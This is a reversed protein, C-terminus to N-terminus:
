REGAASAAGAAGAARLDVLLPTDKRPEIKVDVHKRGLKPNEITVSARGARVPFHLIPTTGALKGNVHVTAWPSANVSITGMAIAGREPRPAAAPATATAPASTSPITSTPTPTPTQPTPAPAPKSAPASAATAVVAEPRPRRSVIVITGAALTAAIGIGALARGGNGRRRPVQAAVVTQRRPAETAEPAAAVVRSLVTGERASPAPMVALGERQKGPEFLANLRERELPFAARLRDRLAGAGGRWGQSFLLEDIADAFAGASPFRDEPRVALARALLPAFVDAREVGAPSPVQCRQIADLTEGSDEEGFPCAGALLTYLVVGASFVDSRLDVPEGRTQEPSMFPITGSIGEVPRRVDRSRAVGFDTLKVEGEFSVLVNAPKVDLHVIGLPRNDPDTRRHAYDLGRLMQGVVHLAEAPPLRDGGAARRLRQVDVGEVFEMALFFENAETRGFDFVQVVNAHSLQMALRVEDFFRAVFQPDGSSGTRIRKLAVRKSVGAETVASAAVIEAMGGEAILGGIDYRRVLQTV